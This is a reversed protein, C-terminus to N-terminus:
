FKTMERRLQAPVAFFHVFFRSSRASNNNKENFRNSKQRERQRRRRLKTLDITPVKLDLSALTVLVDSLFHIQTRETKIAIIGVCKSQWNYAFGRLSLKLPGYEIESVSIFNTTAQERGGYFAFNLMKVDYDHLFQSSIYLFTNHM